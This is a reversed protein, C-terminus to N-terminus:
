EEGRPKLRRRIADSVTERDRRAEAYLADFHKTPIRVSVMMTTDTDDIRPRGERRPPHQKM